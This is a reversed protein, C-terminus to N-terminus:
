PSLLRIGPLFVEPWKTLYDVFVVTYSNGSSSKPFNIVNVGLRDFPGSVPIPTLVPKVAQGPCRSACTVCGRCWGM